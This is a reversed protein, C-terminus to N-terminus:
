HDSFLLVSREIEDTPQLVDHLKQYPVLDHELPAWEADPYSRHHSLIHKTKEWCKRASHDVKIIVSEIFSLLKSRDPPSLNVSEEILQALKEETYDFISILLDLVASYTDFIEAYTVAKDTEEEFMRWRTKSTSFGVDSMSHPMMRILVTWATERERESILKLAKMRVEFAALTQYHWPKFIEKLSNIPRNSLHGGKDIAALKALILSSQTLHEPFWAMAELAWLLGTHYSQPMLFGPDEEFLGVVPSKEKSLHKEVSGLFSTPSAEAILPLRYQNSKWWLPDLTDLLDSVIKDVWLDPKQPLDFQLKEGFLSALILSQIVGEGIWNSFAPKKGHIAAFPRQEPSLTLAPDIECLIQMAAKHLLEFDNRTLQKSAHTWSDLPSTLRWMTGIKVVPPDPSYRWRMLKKSYNEYSEGSIQEVIKIDNESNEDWRGVIIAPIIESANEPTAWTPTARTFELRRRLVTINRASEKSFKEASDKTLGIKILASVFSNRDIQPLKITGYWEGSSDAGLPLIVTHGKQTAKNIIGGVDEFRPILILPKAIVVLERFADANDVIISRSFFDEEITPNNKFCSIIFALAEDRSVGQIPITMPEKGLDILKDQQVKRGGLLIEPILQLNAGASWEDWFDITAQVGDSPYKGLHKTALWAGVSPAEDIWEELTEANYVKIGKWIGDNMKEKVWEEGKQWLRPTVFVFTTEKPDYSLPNKTRKEYDDDAKGKPDKGAGFEWVSKGSPLYESEEAVELVGDWGGILM